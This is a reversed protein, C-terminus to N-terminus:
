GCQGLARAARKQPPRGMLVEHVARARSMARGGMDFLSYTPKVFVTDRKLVHVQEHTWLGHFCPSAIPIGSGISFQM